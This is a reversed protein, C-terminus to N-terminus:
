STGLLIAISGRTTIDGVFHHVIDERMTGRILFQDADMSRDLSAAVTLGRREALVSSQKLNGFALMMKGALTTPIDPLKASFNVPFGLFSADLIGTGDSRLTSTLGGSTAALRCITQAYATASCYWAAGPIATALVGATLNALDTGDIALFTYHGSAAAVAGKFGTLKNALGIIGGYASTGDGNFACDDELAACAYGIESTIFEGLDPASDELLETSGRALVALKKADTGVADLQLSSEPIAAGEAVFSAKLGGIRRPRVGEASRIPRVEASRRFAGVTDRVAIIAEDILEPVLFGGASDVGEVQAKQLAINHSICWDQAKGNGLLAKFFNGAIEARREGDHTPAFARVRHPPNRNFM